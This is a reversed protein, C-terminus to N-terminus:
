GFLNRLKSLFNRPPTHSEKSVIPPSFRFISLSPSEELSKGFYADFPLDGILLKALAGQVSEAIESSADSNAAVVGFLYRESSKEGKHIGGYIELIEPHSNLIGQLESRWESQQEASIPSFTVAEDEGRLQEAILEDLGAENDRLLKVEWPSIEKGWDGSPNLTIWWDDPVRRCLELGSLTHPELAERGSWEDLEEQSTFAPVFSEDNTSLGLVDTFPSPFAASNQIERGQFRRPVLLDSRLFTEYFARITKTSPSEFAEQLAAELKGLAM